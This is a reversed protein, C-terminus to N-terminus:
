QGAAGASTQPTAEVTNSPLGYNFGAPPTAAVASGFGPLQACTTPAATATATATPGTTGGGTGGTGGTTVSCGATAALALVLCAVLAYWPLNSSLSRPRRKM